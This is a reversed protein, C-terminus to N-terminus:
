FTALAARAPALAPWLRARRLYSHYYAGRDPHPLSLRLWSLRKKAKRKKLMTQRVADEKPGAERRDASPGVSSTGALAPM